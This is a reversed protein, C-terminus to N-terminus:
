VLAAAAVSVPCGGGSGTHSVSVPQGHRLSMNAALTTALTKVGEAYSCLVKSQDHSEVADLFCRIQRLYGREVGEYDITQSEIQGTVRLDGTLRLYVDDGFLEVCNGQGEDAQAVCSSVISGVAGGAFRLNVTTCEEFNAIGTASVGRVGLAHVEAADGLFFRLMDFVHTAQEVLQGGSMKPDGWWPHGAKMRFVWRAAGMALKRGRLLQRAKMAADSYRGVYGAQSIVNASAIADRTRIAVGPNLAVPRAVFVAAGLEAAEQVQTTHEGPPLCIFVVDPSVTTLMKRYDHFWAVDERRGVRAAENIDADCVAAVPQKLTALASRYTSAIGGVGIFAIRAM